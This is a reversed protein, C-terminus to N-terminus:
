QLLEDMIQMRGAPSWSMGVWNPTMHLQNNQVARIANWKPSKRIESFIARDDPHFFLDQVFLHDTEIDPYKDPSFEVSMVNVPVCFGPKLELEEYILENLPHASMGQIRILKHIVRMITLSQDGYRARLQKRSRELKRDLQKFNRIAADERGVIEALREYNARWDMSQALIVTPAISEFQDLFPKQYDDCVILDPASSRLEDIRGAVVAHYADKDM